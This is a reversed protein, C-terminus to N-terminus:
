LFLAIGGYLFIHGCGIVPVGVVPFPPSPPPTMYNVIRTSAEISMMVICNKNLIESIHWPMYFLIKLFYHMKVIHNYSWARSRSGRGWPDHFKFNQYIRGQDDNSCDRFREVKGNKRENM